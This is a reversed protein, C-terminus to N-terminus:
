SGKLFFGPLLQIKTVNTEVTCSRPSSMFDYFTEMQGRLYLQATHAENAIIKKNEEETLPSYDSPFNILFDKLVSPFCRPSSPGRYGSRELVSISFLSRGHDAADRPAAVPWGRSTTVLLCSALGRGRACLYVRGGDCGWMPVLAPFSPRRRTSLVSHQVPKLFIRERTIKTGTDWNWM